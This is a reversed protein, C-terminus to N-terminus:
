VLGWRGTPSLRFGQKVSELAFDVTDRALKMHERAPINLTSDRSIVRLGDETLRKSNTGTLTLSTLWEPVVEYTVTRYIPLVYLFRKQVTYQRVTYPTCLDTNRSGTRDVANIDKESHGPGLDPRALKGNALLKPRLDTQVPQVLRSSSTLSLAGPCYDVIADKLRTLWSRSDQELKGGEAAPAIATPPISAVDVRRAIYADRWQARLADGEPGGCSTPPPPRAIKGKFRSCDPVPLPVEITSLDWLVIQGHVHHHPLLPSRHPCDYWCRSIYPVFSRRWRGDFSWHVVHGQRQVYREESKPGIPVLAPYANPPPPPNPVMFVGPAYGGPRDARRQFEHRLASKFSTAVSRCDHCACTRTRFGGAKTLPSDPITPAPPILPVAPPSYSVTAAPPSSCSAPPSPLKPEPARLVPSSLVPTTTEPMALFAIDEKLRNRSCVNVHVGDREYSRFDCFRDIPHSASEVMALCKARATLCCVPGCPQDSHRAEDEKGLGLAIDCRVIRLKRPGPNPEVGEAALESRTKADRAKQRNLKEKEVAKALRKLSKKAKLYAEVRDTRPGPNPEVGEMTLDEPVPEYPEGMIADGDLDVADVTWRKQGRKEALKAFGTPDPRQAALLQPSSKQGNTTPTATVAVVGPGMALDVFIFFM